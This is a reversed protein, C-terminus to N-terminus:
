ELDKPRVFRELRGAGAALDAWRDIEFGIVALGATPFKSQMRELTKKPGAGSLGVALGGLGPNHGILMLMHVDDAVRRLPELLRSPASLYLSRLTKCAIDGGLVAAMLEWTERVREAHSCLVLDPILRNTALYRAVAAAAKRGRPALPRDADALDPQEWSSKAHRMLLLTRM